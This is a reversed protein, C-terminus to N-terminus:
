PGNGPWGGLHRWQSIALRWGNGIAMKAMVGRNRKCIRWGIAVGGNAAVGHRLAPWVHRWISRRRRAAALGGGNRM